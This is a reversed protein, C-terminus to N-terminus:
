RRKCILLVRTTMGIPNVAYAPTDFQFIFDEAAGVDISLGTITTAIVNTTSGNTQFNGILSSTATTVNRLYATCNTASGSTSNNGVTIVAGIVTFDYGFSMDNSTDTTNPTLGGFGVYYTTSDAPSLTGGTLPITFYVDGKVSARLDAYYQAVTRNTWAGSKYQLIDDNVPTLGSIATLNTNLPQYVSSLSPIDAAVLARFSPAGSSGNPGAFVFNASTSDVGTGGRSVALQGTWGLTMSTAALLSTLPSGGLTLTVNTDNVRSLEAGSTAAGLQSVTVADQPDVGDLLNKLQYAGFDVTTLATDVAFDTSTITGSSGFMAINGATPLPSPPPLPPVIQLYIYYYQNDYAFTVVRKMQAATVDWYTTDSVPSIPPYGKYDPSGQPATNRPDSGGVESWYFMQDNIFTLVRTNFDADSEGTNQVLTDVIFSM